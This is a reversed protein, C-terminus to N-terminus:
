ESPEPASLSIGLLERLATQGEPTVQLQRREDGRVVWGADSFRQYLAAGLAGGLHFRRETWDRCAYAFQRRTPNARHLDVGLRGFVEEAHEGLTVEGSPGLKANSGDSEPPVIAEASVLADFVAVGLTGALHDYCTRATALPAVPQALRPPEGALVILSEILRAVTPDAIRYVMQRGQRQSSVLNQARLVALHNSVNSQSASTAATLEAVTAEGGMLHRLLTLRLPDALAQALQAARQSENMM